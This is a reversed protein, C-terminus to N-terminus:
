GSIAKKSERQSIEYRVKLLITSENNAHWNFLMRTQDLYKKMDYASVEWYYQTLGGNILEEIDRQSHSIRYKLHKHEGLLSNLADATSKNTHERFAALLAKEERDFHADLWEVVEGVLDRLKIVSERNESREPVFGDGVGELKEIIAADNAQHQIEELKQKKINHEEIISDILEIASEM